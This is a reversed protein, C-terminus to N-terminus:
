LMCCILERKREIEGRGRGRGGREGGGGVGRYDFWIRIIIKLNKEIRM